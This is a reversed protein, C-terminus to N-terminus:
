PVASGRAAEFLGYWTARDMRYALARACARIRAPRTTGIVPQIAAPHRLLWALVVAEPPLDTQAALERVRWTVAHVSPARNDLPAGTFLGRGLPSWAQLQIRQQRCWDILGPTAPGPGVPQGARVGEDIAAIAGLGLPLQNAVLPEELSEQILAIQHQHMNSVGFHRVKGHHRLTAFASAIEEPELLPDPRHLLLLDIYDTGLRQLTGEVSQVIWRRSLDYRKPAEGDAPRIGCKSQLYIQHRLEPRSQLVTGFLAEARGDAYIDAHDFCNIGEDVAADIAAHARERETRDPAGTPRDGGLGMCGYVLRSVGPLHRSLPVEMAPAPAISM